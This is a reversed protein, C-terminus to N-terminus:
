KRNQQLGKLAFGAPLWNAPKHWFLIPSRQCQCFQIHPM